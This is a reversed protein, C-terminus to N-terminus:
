PAAARPAARRADAGPRGAGPARCAIFRIRRASARIRRPRGTKWGTSARRTWRSRASGRKRPGASRGSRAGKPRKRGRRRSGSRWSGGPRKKGRAPPWRWIDPGGDAVLVQRGRRGHGGAAGARAAGVEDRRARAFRAASRGRRDVRRGGFGRRVRAAGGGASGGRRAAAAGGGAGVGRSGREAAHGGPGRREDRDAAGGAEPRGAGGGCVRRDHGGACAGRVLGNQPNWGDGTRLAGFRAPTWLLRRDRPEHPKFLARPTPPAGRMFAASDRRLTLAPPKARENARVPVDRVSLSPAKQSSFHASGMTESESGSSNAVEARTPVVSRPLHRRSRTSPRRRCPWRDVGRGMAVTLLDRDLHQVRRDRAVDVGDRAKEALSVDGVGDVMGTDHPDEVVVDGFVASREDDHLQELPRREVAAELVAPRKVTPSASRM